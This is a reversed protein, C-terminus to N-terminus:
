DNNVEEEERQKIVYSCEGESQVWESCEPCRSVDVYDQEQECFTTQPNKIVAHSSRIHRFGPLPPQYFGARDYEVAPPDSPRVGKIPEAEEPYTTEPFAKPAPNPIVVSDEIQGELASLMRDTPSELAPNSLEFQTEMERELEDMLFDPPFDYPGM